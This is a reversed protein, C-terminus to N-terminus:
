DFSTTFITVGVTSSIYHSGSGWRFNAVLARSLAEFSKHTQCRLPQRQIGDHFPHDIIIVIFTGKDDKIEVIRVVIIM